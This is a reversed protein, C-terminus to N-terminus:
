DHSRPPNIYNDFLMRPAQKMGEAFIAKDTSDQKGFQSRMIGGCDENMVRFIAQMEPFGMMKGIYDALKARDEPSAPRLLEDPTPAM